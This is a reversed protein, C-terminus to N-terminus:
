TRLAQNRTTGSSRTACRTIQLTGRVLGEYQAGAWIPVSNADDAHACCTSKVNSTRPGSTSCLPPKSSSLPQHRLLLRHRASPLGARASVGPLSPRIGGERDGGGGCAPPAGATAAAFQKSGHGHGHGVGVSTTGTNSGGWFYHAITLVTHILNIISRYSSRRTPYTSLEGNVFCCCMCPRPAVRHPAHVARLSGARSRHSFGDGAAASLQPGQHSTRQQSGDFFYVVQNARIQPACISELPPRTITSRWCSRSM